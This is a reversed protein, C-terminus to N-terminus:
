FLFFIYTKIFNIYFDTVTAGLFLCIKFKTEFDYLLCTNGRLAIWVFFFVFIIKTGNIAAKAQTASILKM